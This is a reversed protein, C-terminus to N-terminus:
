QVTLSITTSLSGGGSTATVVISYVGAATGTARNVAPAASGVTGGCAILGGVIVLLFALLLQPALQLARQTYVRRGLWMLAAAVGALCLALLYRWPMRPSKFPTAASHATTAISLTVPTVGSGAPITASPSFTATAGM